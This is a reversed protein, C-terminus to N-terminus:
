TKMVEDRRIEYESKEDLLIVQEAPFRRLREEPVGIAVLRSARVAVRAKDKVQADLWGRVGKAKKIADEDGIVMDMHAIFKKIQDASMPAGDEVDRFELEIATREGDMGRDLPIFPTPLNTLAWYLNPCGPQGLMEELPVIAISAIAIGVLNGIFTPHEGLHRSMAFM